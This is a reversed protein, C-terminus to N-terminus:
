GAIYHNLYFFASGWVVVMLILVQPHGKNKKYVLLLGIEQFLFLGLIALSAKTRKDIKDSFSPYKRSAAVFSAELALQADRYEPPPSLSLERTDQIGTAVRTLHIKDDNRSLEISNNKVPIDLRWQRANKFEVVKPRIPQPANMAPQDDLYWVALTWSGTKTQDVVIASAPEDAVWGAFPKDSGKYVNVSGGASPIIYAKLAIDKGAPKLTYSGGDSHEALDIEPSTTWITRVTADPDAEVYDLVGWINHDKLHFVQRRTSFGNQTERSLDIFNLGQFNDCRNLTVTRASDYAEGVLHPANSGEWSVAHSRYIEGYPYYGINTWWNYGSAWLILSLEDAHKHAHGQFNAWTIATQSLPDTGHWDKLDNWWVALGAIPYIRSDIVPAWSIKDEWGTCANNEFRCTRPGWPGGSPGTDGIMPLTGDPRRLQNYVLLAKDYKEKWDTPIDEDLMSLLRFVNAMFGIGDRHYGPSHELVVGESNIYYGFQDTIRQIAMAKYAEMRPLDPFAVCVQLLAINQMLGHNSWFTFHAPQSLRKATRLILAFIQQATDQDYLRHNRFLKWFKAMAAIRSAMAHDNWIFGEPLWLGKEFDAWSVIIDRARKLYIEEGTAEFASLFVMPIRFSALALQWKVSGGAVDARSFPLNLTRRPLGPIEAEGTLLKGAIQVLDEEDYNREYFFRIEDLTSDSPFQRAREIISSDVAENLVFHHVLLPLWFAAIIIPPIIRLLLKVFM